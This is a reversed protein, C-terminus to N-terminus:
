QAAGPMLLITEGNKLKLHEVGPGEAPRGSGAGGDGLSQATLGGPVLPVLTQSHQAPIGHDGADIRDATAVFMIPAASDYTATLERVKSEGAALTEDFTTPNLTLAGAPARLTVRYTGATAAVLHVDFRFTEGTRISQRVRVRVSWDQARMCSGREILEPRRTLPVWARPAPNMAAIVGLASLVACAILIRIM